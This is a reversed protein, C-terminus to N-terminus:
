EEINTQKYFRAKDEPDLTIESQVTSLEKKGHIVRNTKINVTDPQTITEQHFDDLIVVLKDGPIEMTRIVKEVNFSAMVPVVIPNEVTGSPQQITYFFQNKM